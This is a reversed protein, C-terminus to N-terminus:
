PSCPLDPQHLLDIASSSLLHRIYIMLGFEVCCNFIVIIHQQVFLHISRWSDVALFILIANLLNYQIFEEICEGSLFIVQYMGTQYMLPV